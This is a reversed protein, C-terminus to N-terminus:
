LHRTLKNWNSGAVPHGSLWVPPVLFMNILQSVSQKFRLDFPDFKARFDRAKDLFGECLETHELEYVPHCPMWVYSDRFSQETPLGDLIQAYTLEAVPTSLLRRLAQRFTEKHENDLADQDPVEIDSPDPPPPTIYTIPEPNEIRARM